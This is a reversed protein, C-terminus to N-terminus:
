RCLIETESSCSCDCDCMAAPENRRGGQGQQVLRLIGQFSDVDCPIRLAGEHRFGFEEEAERLLDAFAWHGLYETPIVFRRMEEGVYVAFSGRPVSSRGGSSAASPTVTALKKWKKLLQQLRVIDRIKNSGRGGQQQQQQHVQQYEEMAAARQALLAEVSADKSRRQVQTNAVLVVRCIFKSSAVAGM